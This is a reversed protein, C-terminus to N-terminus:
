TGALSLPVTIGAAITPAGRRLFVFVVLMVLLVTALLTLQMDHVSARITQTRDTLVAIDIGAPIWQRLEPLLAYIADVTTIVNANAQRTIVLLVSPNRNFWGASYANRVGPGVNAIDSLRIVTGNVTTVVVPAYDSPDPLQENLGITTGRQPGD